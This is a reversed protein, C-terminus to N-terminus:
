TVNKDTKKVNLIDFCPDDDTPPAQVALSPKQVMVIAKGPKLVKREM